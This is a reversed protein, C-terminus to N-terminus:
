YDVIEGGNIKRTVGPHDFPHDYGAEIDGTLPYYPWTDAVIGQGGHDTLTIKTILKTSKYGYKFPLVLRLPAGHEPTLPQDYMGLAFLTRPNLLDELSHFDYYSDACDVRMWTAKPTPRILRFLEGARFGNWTIRASWCQVCKLRSSQSIQKLRQLAHLRLRAPQEVFGAVELEWSDPDPAAIPNFEMVKLNFPDPNDTPIILRRGEPARDPFPGSPSPPCLAKPAGSGKANGAWAAAAGARALRDLFKRRNM